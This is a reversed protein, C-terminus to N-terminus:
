FRFWFRNSLDFSPHAYLRSPTQPVLCSSADVQAGRSHRCFFYWSMEPGDPIDNAGTELVLDHGGRFRCQAVSTGGACDFGHERCHLGQGTVGPPVEMPRTQSNHCADYSTYANLVEYNTAYYYGDWWGTGSPPPQAPITHDKNGQLLLMSVPDGGPTFAREFGQHPKGGCGTAIAAFRGPLSRVLQHAFVGGNSCGYAYIRGLDVCYKRGISGLLYSIFSVDNYCTTWDCPHCAGKRIKCSQYCLGNHTQLPDCVQVTKNSGSTGATNWSSVPAGKAVDGLGQPYVAIFGAKEALKGFSAKEHYWLARGGWGHFVLVVPM